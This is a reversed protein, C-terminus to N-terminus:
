SSLARLSAAISGFGARHRATLSGSGCGVVARSAVIEADALTRGNALFADYDIDNLDMRMASM